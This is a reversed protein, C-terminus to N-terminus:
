HANLPQDTWVDRYSTFYTLFLIPFLLFIGLGLTVLIVIPFVMLCVLGYIFLPVLNEKSGQFSKKLALIADMDHFVILAPAFWIAMMLPIFLLMSILYSIIMALVSSDSIGAQNSSLLAFMIGGMTIFMPIMCIITGLLYLLGLKALPKLHSKFGSFLHDFRLEDGRYQAAAGQLIGGLFVFVVVVMVLNLIPVYSLLGLIVLLTAGIALWLLPQRQFLGFAQVVWMVGASANCRRPTNLLRPLMMGYEDTPPIIPPTQNPLKQLNLAFNHEPESSHAM